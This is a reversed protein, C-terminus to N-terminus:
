NERMTELFFSVIIKARARFLFIDRDYLEMEMFYWATYEM